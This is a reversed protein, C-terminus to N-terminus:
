DGSNNSLPPDIALMSRIHPDPDSGAYNGTADYVDYAPNSSHASRTQVPAQRSQALSQEGAPQRAQRTATQAFAPAAIITALAVSAILVKKM